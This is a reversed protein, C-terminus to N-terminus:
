AVFIGVQRPKSLSFQVVTEFGFKNPVAEVLYQFLLFLSLRFHDCLKM